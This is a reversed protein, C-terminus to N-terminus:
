RHLKHKPLFEKGDKTTTRTWTHLAKRRHIVTYQSRVVQAGMRMSFALPTALSHAFNNRLTGLYGIEEGTAGFSGLV